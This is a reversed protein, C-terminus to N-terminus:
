RTTGAIWERLPFVLEGFEERCPGHRARGLFRSKSRRMIRGPGRAMVLVRDSLYFADRLDHTIPMITPKQTLFIDQAM